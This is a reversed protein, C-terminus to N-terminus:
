HPTRGPATQLLGGETMSFFEVFAKSVAWRVEEPDPAKGMLRKMSTTERGSLGCPVIKEFYGLDPDVNLSFGHHGIWRRVGIGISALKKGEVWIGRFGREREGALGFAALARVLVEELGDLYRGIDRERRNLDIISYGVMQGPGHYTIDGGRSTRHLPIGSRELEEESVKLHALRGLRGLTFTHPHELLILLDSIEGLARKELLHHQLNLAVIYDTQGIHAVHINGM